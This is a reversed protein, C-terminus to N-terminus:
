TERAVELLGRLKRCFVLENPSFKTGCHATKRLAFLLFPVLADWNKPNDIMFKRLMTELTLNAREIGGHSQFHFPASFNAHVGVRERLKTMLQSRM